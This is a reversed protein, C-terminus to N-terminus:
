KNDSNFWQKKKEAIYLKLRHLRRSGRIAGRIRDVLPEYCRGEILLQYKFALRESTNMGEMKKLDKKYFQVEGGGGPVMQDYEDPASVCNPLRRPMGLKKPPEPKKASREFIDKELAKLKIKGAQYFDKIKQVIGTKVIQNTKTQEIKM